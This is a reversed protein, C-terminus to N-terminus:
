GRKRFFFLLLLGYVALTTCQWYIVNLDDKQHMQVVPYLFFPIAIVTLIVLKKRVSV